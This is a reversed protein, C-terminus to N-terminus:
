PWVLKQSHRYLAVATNWYQGHVQSVSFLSYLRRCPNCTITNRRVSDIAVSVISESSLAASHCWFIVVRPPLHVQGTHIFNVPDSYNGTTIAGRTTLKVSPFIWSCYTLSKNAFFAIILIPMLFSTLQKGKTFLQVLQSFCMGGDQVMATVARCLCSIVVLLSDGIIWLYALLLYLAYMAYRRGVILLM